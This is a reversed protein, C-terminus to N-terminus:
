GAQDHQNVLMGPTSISLLPHWAVVSRQELQGNLVRSLAARPPHQTILQEHSAASVVQLSSLNARHRWRLPCVTGAAARTVPRFVVPRGWEKHIIGNLLPIM